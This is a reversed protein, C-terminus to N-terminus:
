VDGIRWIKSTRKGLRVEHVVGEWVIQLTIEPTREKRKYIFLRTVMLGDVWTATHGRVLERNPVPPIM